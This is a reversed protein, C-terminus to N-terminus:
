IHINSHINSFFDSCFTGNSSSLYKSIYLTFVPDNLVLYKSIYLTFVPDNLVLYKSLFSYETSFQKKKSTPSPDDDKNNSKFEILM